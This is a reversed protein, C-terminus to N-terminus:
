IRIQSTVAEAENSVSLQDQQFLSPFKPKKSLFVQDQSRNIENAEESPCCWPHDPRERADLVGSFSLVSKEFHPDNIVHM